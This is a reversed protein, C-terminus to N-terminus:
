RTIKYHLARPNKLEFPRMERAFFACCFFPPIQADAMLTERSFAGKLSDDTPVNVIVVQNGKTVAVAAFCSRSEAGSEALPAGSDAM